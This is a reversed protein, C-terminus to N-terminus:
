PSYQLEGSIKRLIKRFFYVIQRAEYESPMGRTMVAKLSRKIRLSKEGSVKISDVAEDILRHILRIKEGSARPPINSYVGGLSTYLEYLVIGVSHSLNLISYDPHAPITIVFDTMSIEERTLGTSERGFLIAISDVSRSKLVEVFNRLEISQRLYDGKSYGIGTTSASISVGSLAKGLDDVIRANVLFDRAKAAYNLAEEISAKPNVLFLESVGFNMCLRATFGVNIAGEPEVLVVRIRM